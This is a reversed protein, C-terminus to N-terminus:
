PQEDGGGQLLRTEDPLCIPRISCAPCCHPPAHAPAPLDPGAVLLAHVSRITDLTLQRLEPTFEVRLRHRSRQYFVYGQTVTVGLHEELLLGQACLQVQDNLWENREGQKFEVPYVDPGDVEVLDLRAILGLRESSLTVSRCIERGGVLEQGPEDVRQHLIRGATVHTNTAFEGLVYEYYCRRPCYLYANLASAPVLTEEDM